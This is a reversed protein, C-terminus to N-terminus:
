KKLYNIFKNANKLYLPMKTESCNNSLNVNFTTICFMLLFVCKVTDQNELCLQKATIRHLIFREM